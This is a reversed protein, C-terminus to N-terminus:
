PYGLTPLWVLWGLESTTDVLAECRREYHWWGSGAVRSENGIRERDSRGAALQMGIVMGGHGHGFDRHRGDRRIGWLCFWVTGIGADMCSTGWISILGMLGRSRVKGLLLLWRGILPLFFLSSMHVYIGKFIEPHSLYEQAKSVACM